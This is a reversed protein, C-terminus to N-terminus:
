WGNPWRGGNRFGGNYFGGNRFGGNYFGGNQFGGNGWGGNGFGGNGWGGNSWGIGGPGIVVFSIADPGLASPGSASAEVQRQRAAAAIRQLRAEIDGQPASAPAELAAQAAQLSLVMGTDFPLSAAILLVGLLRSQTILKM